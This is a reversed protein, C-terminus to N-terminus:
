GIMPGPEIGLVEMIEEGSLPSQLKEIPTERRAREIRERIPTLDLQKVGPRLANTDAEVLHLLRDTHPGLDRLVRRAAAPSFTPSSGLRMHNKVLRAVSEVVENPFKLRRLLQRAVEEGLTEHGFFRVNGHEDVFRTQPKAVDHLLAALSLVLDGSGVNRVVLLSHDWVDLHHFSGQEVGVMTLLEPAFHELLGLRRLDDLARDADPLLLMKVLEDRVRESSIIALRHAESVIADELNDAAVFGLQWKFRVARLMRLPDDHFTAGPKLPTRLLRDRLDPLGSGLPDRIEKTHLNLLLTNVTFDRRLADEELTAPQVQPKRSEEAYSERRATVLEINVGAVLVMATGFRPYLVPEISSVRRSRLFRALDLASSELVLDFDSSEGMGLLRDRVAGGVLWLNGEYGTGRTADRIQLLAPHLPTRDLM